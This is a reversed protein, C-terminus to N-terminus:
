RRINSKRLRSKGDPSVPSLRKATAAPIADPLVKSQGKVIAQIQDWTLGWRNRGPDGPKGGLAMETFAYRRRRILATLQGTTMGLLEAAEGPWYILKKSEITAM